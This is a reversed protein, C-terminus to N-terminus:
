PTESNTVNATGRTGAGVNQTNSFETTTGDPQFFTPTTGVLGTAAGELAAGLRRFLGYVTRGTRYAFNLISVEAKWWQTVYGSKTVLMAIFGTSPIESPDCDYYYGGDGVSTPAPGARNAITGGNTSIQIVGAASLDIGPQLNGSTDQLTFFIRVGLSM